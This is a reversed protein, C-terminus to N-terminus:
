FQATLGVFLRRGLLDYNPYTNPLGSGAIAANVLPPDQDFVNNVGARLTLQERVKWIASVDMYSRSPLLHNFPDHSGNGVTPENTDTELKVEGMHRWAVSATVDWPTTWTVRLTHRWRPNVTGCQPGYLGACDYAPNGPLSVTSLEQLYSGTLNVSVRGWNDLGWSDLPLRYNAQLDVGKTRLEGVNVNTGNIYGAGFLVGNPARNIQSCFFEEGTQLCNQLIVGLSM